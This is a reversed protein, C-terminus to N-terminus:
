PVTHVGVITIWVWICQSTLKISRCTCRVNSRWIYMCRSTLKISSCTCWWPSTIQVRLTCHVQLQIITVWWHIGLKIHRSYQVPEVTDAACNCTVSRYMSINIMNSILNKVVPVINLVVRNCSYLVSPHPFNPAALMVVLHLDIILCVSVCKCWMYSIM